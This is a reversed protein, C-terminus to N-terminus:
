RLFPIHLAVITSEYPVSEIEWDFEPGYYLQLRHLVNLLGIGADSKLRYDAYGQKLRKIAEGGMGKGNDMIRIHLNEDKEIRIHVTGSGHGKEIGHIISNEVIPQLMMKPVPFDLLEEPCSITYSLKNAFRGGQLSLYNEIHRLEMRLGVVETNHNMSYRFIDGLESIKDKIERVGHSLALTGISQLTNYLFHPNIQSQLMKLRATSLELRNRYEQNIMMDLQEVMDRFRQELIGLEDAIGTNAELKFNGTEVKAISRVIRKIRLIIYYSLLTALAVVFAIAIFQVILSRSLTQNAAKNITSEPVFRVMTLPLKKFQDTTYIFVGKVGNWQGSIFGERDQLTAAIGIIQADSEHKRHPVSSFLLQPKQQILFFESSGESPDSIGGVIAAIESQGVYLSTMGLVKSGPYDILLKNVLLVNDNGIQSVQFEKDIDWDGNQTKPISIGPSELNIGNGNVTYNQGSLASQYNVAKLELHSAYIKNMQESIYLSEYPKREPSQLYKMLDEDNYLSVALTSLENFYRKIENMGIKMSHENLEIIQRKVSNSNSQYAIMNSVFFPIVAAILMGVMLKALLSKKIWDM